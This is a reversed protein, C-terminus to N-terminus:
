GAISGAFYKDELKCYDSSPCAGKKMTFGKWAKPNPHTKLPGPPRLYCRSPTGCVVGACKSGLATCKAQAASLTFHKSGVGAISGAFYKDELKCYKPKPKSPSSQCDGKKM